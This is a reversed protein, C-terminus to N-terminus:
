WCVGEQSALLKEAQSPVGQMKHFRFTWLWTWLLSGNKSLRLKPAKLGFLGQCIFLWGHQYKKHCIKLLYWQATDELSMSNMSLKM